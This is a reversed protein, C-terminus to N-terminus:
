LIQARKWGGNKNVALSIDQALHFAAALIGKLPFGLYLVIVLFDTNSIMRCVRGKASAGSLLLIAFIRFITSDPPESNFFLRHRRRWLPVAKM